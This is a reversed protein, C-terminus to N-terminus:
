QGVSAVNKHLMKKILITTVLANAGLTLIFISFIYIWLPSTSKNADPGDKRIVYRDQGNEKLVVVPNGNNEVLRMIAGARGNNDNLVVGPIGGEYLGISIRVVGHEDYMFLAPTGEESTTLQATTNGQSDQLIFNDSRITEAYLGLPFCLLSGFLIQLFYQRM